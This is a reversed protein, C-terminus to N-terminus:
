RATYQGLTALVRERLANPLPAYHLAPALEQGPGLAWRIFGELAKAKAADAPTPDILLYTFASIPYATTGDADTISCRFDAPIAGLSAAAAATVSDTTPEVFQGLRNQVAAYALQNEKAYTLEVYGLAGPTQKVLGTVGENGKGGIGVPWQVAKGAGVNTQWAPSVKALYETFIHTTGSGDSRYVPMIAATVGALQPNLATLAPDNWQTIHGLYIESLLAGTLQLRGPTNPVHYVAVVAGLVTPIHLITRGSKALQEDSMPADSAGFDVTKATMQQIGGGSGISQYNFQAGAHTRQYEYFWKAYLPYPFTAGAGTLRLTGTPTTTSPTSATTPSATPAPGSRQCALLPWLGCLLLAAARVRRIHAHM